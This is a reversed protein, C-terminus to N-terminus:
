ADKIKYIITTLPLQILIMGTTEGKKENFYIVQTTCM